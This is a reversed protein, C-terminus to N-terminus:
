GKLKKWTALCRQATELEPFRSGEQEILYYEVGGAAEAAAFIEAWPSVGEGFLVRYGKGDGPAWDKCHVSQIRGPNARIWAIPDAGAELCTGVDFQLVVDKPTNAALVDMPRQGEVRAWETQHNHFGTAMRLPRLKEATVTLLDAVEKWGEIGNVNGASAMVLYKAGLIQNLEIAKVIGAATFSPTNNHTSHCRVGLDDLLVRVEKARGPTWEFYPAYFEVVQYGMQAVARVTGTLDRALEGRVSYLELGVPITKGTAAALGLPVAASAALFSRRSVSERPNM